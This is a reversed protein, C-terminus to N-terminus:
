EAAVAVRSSVADGPLRWRVTLAVGHQPKLPNDDQPSGTDVINVPTCRELANDHEPM